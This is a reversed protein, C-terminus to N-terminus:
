NRDDKTNVETSTGEERRHEILVSNPILLRALMVLGVVVVVIVIIDNMHGVIPIFYPVRDIPNLLYAIALQLLWCACKPTRPDALANRYFNIEGTIRGLARQLKL